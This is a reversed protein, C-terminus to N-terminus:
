KGEQFHQITQESYIPIQFMTDESYRFYTYYTKKWWLHGNTHKEQFIM